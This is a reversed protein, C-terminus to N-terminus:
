VSQHLAHCSDKWAADAFCGNDAHYGTVSVGFTLARWEYELKSNLTSDMTLDEQLSVHTYDSFSNVFITAARFRPQTLSGTFQPILGPTASIM